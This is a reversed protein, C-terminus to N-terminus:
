QFRENVKIDGYLHNNPYAIDMLTNAQEVLEVALGYLGWSGIATCTCGVFCGTDIVLVGDPRSEGQTNQLQKKLGQISKYGTYGITYCPIKSSIELQSFSTPSSELAWKNTVRLDRKLSHLKSTTREVENWQTKLNSKVEIVAIVSEALYLRNNGLPMPFNLAFPFEIAIDIQGSSNGNSDTIMGQGFRYISPLIESLNVKIVIEREIGIMASALGKGGQYHAILSQQIAKLRREIHPNEM